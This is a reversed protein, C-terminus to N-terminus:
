TTTQKAPTGTHGAAPTVLTRVPARRRRNQQNRATSEPNGSDV